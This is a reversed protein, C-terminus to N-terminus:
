YKIDMFLSLYKSHERINDSIELNIYKTNIGYIINKTQPIFGLKLHKYGIFIKDFGTKLNYLSEDGVFYGNKQYKFSYKIFLPLVQHFDVDFKYYGVGFPRHHYYGDDGIYKTDSDFHYKLYTISKWDIFGMINYIGLFSSIAPIQYFFELDIGGGYGIYFDDDEHTKLLLNRDTYYYDIDTIFHNKLNVGDVKMYQLQKGRFINFTIALKSSNNNVIKKYFLTDNQYYVLDGIITPQKIEYGIEDRKLLVNFDNSAYYWTEIFGKNVNLVGESKYRYGIEYSNYNKYFSISSFDLVGNTQEKSPIVEWKNSFLDFYLKDSYLNTDITLHYKNDSNIVYGFLFLPLFLLNFFHKLQVM